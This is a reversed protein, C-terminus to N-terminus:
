KSENNGKEDNNAVDSESESLICKRTDNIKKVV